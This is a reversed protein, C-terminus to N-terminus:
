ARVTLHRGPNTFQIAICKQGIGISMRKFFDSPLVILKSKCRRCVTLKLLSQCAGFAALHFTIKSQIWPQAFIVSGIARAAIVNDIFGTRRHLTTRVAPFCLKNATYQIPNKGNRVSASRLYRFIPRWVVKLYRQLEYRAKTWGLQLQQKMMKSCLHVNQM